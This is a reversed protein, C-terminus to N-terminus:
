KALVYCTDGDKGSTCSFGVVDSPDLTRKTVSSGMQKFQQGMLSTQVEYVVVSGSAKTSHHTLAAYGIIILIIVSIGTKIKV